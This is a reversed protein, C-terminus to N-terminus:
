KKWPLSKIYETTRERFEDASIGKIFEEEFNFTTEKKIKVIKNLVVEDEISAIWDILEQKQIKTQAEM